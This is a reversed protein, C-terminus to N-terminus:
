LRRTAGRTAASITVAQTTPGTGPALDFTSADAQAYRATAINSNAYGSASAIAEITESSSVMIPGADELAQPTRNILCSISPGPTTDCIAM